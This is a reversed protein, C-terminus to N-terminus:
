GPGVHAGNRCSFRAPAQFPLSASDTAPGSGARQLEQSAGPGFGDKSWTILMPDHSRRGRRKFFIGVRPGRLWTVGGWPKGHAAGSVSCRLGVLQVTRSARWAYYGQRISRLLTRHPLPLPAPSALTGVPRDVSWLGCGWGSWQAVGRLPAQAQAGGGRAWSTGAVVLTEVTVPPGGDRSTAARARVDDVSSRETPSRLQTWAVRGNHNVPSPKHLPFFLFPPWFLIPWSDNPRKKAYGRRTLIFAIAQM